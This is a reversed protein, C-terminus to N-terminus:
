YISDEVHLPISILKQTNFELNGVNGINVLTELHVTNCRTHNIVM